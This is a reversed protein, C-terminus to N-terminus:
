NITKAPTLASLDVHLGSVVLPIVSAPFNHNGENECKRREMRGSPQGGGRERVQRVQVGPGPLM